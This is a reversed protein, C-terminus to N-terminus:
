NTNVPGLVFSQQAPSASTPAQERSHRQHWADLARQRAQKHDVIAQPYNQGLVVGAQKLASSPAAWPEHCYRSPLASLEPLWRKIYCAEADFKQGQSIPNFIRFYPAADAGCGATWQWGCVNNALDADALCHWFWAEGARWDQMLHKCLFSAVLMRARNPMWAEQWLQRMAADILPYGSQGRQWREVLANDNQYPFLDFSSKFNAQPLEPLQFLLNWNFERWVLQRLFAHQEQEAAMSLCDHWLRIPSLLGLALAVSLQSGCNDDIQDRSHQYANLRKKLFEYALQESSPGHCWRQLIAGAWKPEAQADLEYLRAPSIEPELAILKAHSRDFAEPRRLKQLCFKKYFSTFVKYYEGQGNLVSAPALMLFSHECVLELGQQQAWEFLKLQQAYLDKEYCWSWCIKQIRHKLVLQKVTEILRGELVYLDLQQQQLESKLRRLQQRLIVDQAQAGPRQGCRYLYVPLVADARCAANLAPNDDLRLDKFFLILSRM